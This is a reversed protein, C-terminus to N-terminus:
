KVEAADVEVESANVEVEAGEVGVERRDVNGEGGSEEVSPSCAPTKSEVAEAKAQHMGASAADGFETGRELTHRWALANGEIERPAAFQARPDPSYRTASRTFARCDSAM